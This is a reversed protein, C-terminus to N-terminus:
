TFIPIKGQKEPEYHALNLSTFINVLYTLENLVLELILLLFSRDVNFEPFFLCKDPNVLGLNGSPLRYILHCTKLTATKM